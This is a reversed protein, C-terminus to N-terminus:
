LGLCKILASLGDYDNKIERQRETANVNDLTVKQGTEQVTAELSVFKDKLTNSNIFELEEVDPVNSLAAKEKEYTERLTTAKNKQDFAFQQPSVEKVIPTTEVKPATVVVPEEKKVGVFELVNQLNNDFDDIKDLLLNADVKAERMISRVEKDETSLNSAYMPVYSAYTLALEQNKTKNFVKNYIDLTYGKLDFSKSDVITKYILKYLNRHQDVTLACFRM